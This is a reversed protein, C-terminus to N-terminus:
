IRGGSGVKDIQNEELFTERNFVLTGVFRENKLDPRMVLRGDSLLQRMAERAKGVNARNTFIQLRRAVSKRFERIFEERSFKSPIQSKGNSPRRISRRENELEAIWAKFVSTPSVAHACPPEYDTRPYETSVGTRTL